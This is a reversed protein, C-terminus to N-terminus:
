VILTDYLLVIHVNVSTGIHVYPVSTSDSYFTSRSTLMQATDSDVKVGRTSYWCKIKHAELSSVSIYHNPNYPCKEM